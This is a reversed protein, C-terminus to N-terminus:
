GCSTLVIGGVAHSGGRYVIIRYRACCVAFRIEGANILGAAIDGSGPRLCVLPMPYSAGCATPSLRLPRRVLGPGKLLDALCKVAPIDIIKNGSTNRFQIESSPIQIRVLENLGRVENHDEDLGTMDEAQNRQVFIM